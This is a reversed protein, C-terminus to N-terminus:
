TASSGKLGSFRVRNPELVVFAGQLAVSHKEALEIAAASLEARASVPWRILVVGGSDRAAAFVLQGFDKDETLLVRRESLALELVTADEAGRHVESVATVDHGTARLAQVVAFDCSEDALFRM